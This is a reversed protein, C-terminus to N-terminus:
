IVVNKNSKTIKKINNTHRIITLESVGLLKAMEKVKLNKKMLQKLEVDDVKGNRTPKNDNEVDEKKAKSELGKRLESKFKTQMPLYVDLVEQSPKEWYLRKIPRMKIFGWDNKTRNRLYKRYTSKSETKAAPNHQLVFFKTVNKQGERTCMEIQVHALLRLHKDAMVAFPLNFFGITQLDRYTQLLQSYNVNRQWQRASFSVGLEECISVDGPPLDKQNTYKLLDKLYFFVRNATDFIKGQMVMLLESIRLNMYSKGGGTIGLTLCIANKGTNPRNLLHTLAALNDPNGLEPYKKLEEQTFETRIKM